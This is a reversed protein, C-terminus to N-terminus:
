KSPEWNPDKSKLYHYLEAEDPSTLLVELNISNLMQQFSFKLVPLLWEEPHFLITTVHERFFASQRNYIELLSSYSPTENWNFTVGWYQSIWFTNTRTCLPQQRFWIDVDLVSLVHATSGWAQLSVEINPISYAGNGYPGGIYSFGYEKELFGFYRKNLVDTDVHM